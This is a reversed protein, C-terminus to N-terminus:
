LATVTWSACSAPPWRLRTSSADKGRVAPLSKLPVTRCTSYGGGNTGWGSCVDIVKIGVAVGWWTPLM